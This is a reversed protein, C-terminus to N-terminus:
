YRELHKNQARKLKLKYATEHNNTTLFNELSFYLFNISRPKLIFLKKFIGKADFLNNLTFNIKQLDM